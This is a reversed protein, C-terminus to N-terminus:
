EKHEMQRQKTACKIPEAAMVYLAVGFQGANNKTPRPPRRASVCLLRWKRCLWTKREVIHATNATLRDNNDAPKNYGCLDRVRNLFLPIFFFFVCGCLRESNQSRSEGHWVEFFLNITQSKSECSDGGERGKGARGESLVWGGVEECFRITVCDPLRLRSLM